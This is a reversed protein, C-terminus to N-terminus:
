GRPAADTAAVWQGHRRSRPVGVGRLVEHAEAGAARAVVDADGVVAEHVRVDISEAVDPGALPALHVVASGRRVHSRRSRAGVRDVAPAVADDRPADEVVNRAEPPLVVDREPLRDVAPFELVDRRRLAYFWPCSIRD